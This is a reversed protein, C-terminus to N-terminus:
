LIRHFMKELDKVQLRVFTPRGHPCHGLSDESEFDDLLRQIEEKALIDHARVASHCALTALSQRSVAEVGREWSEMLAEVARAPERKLIAPAAVLQVKQDNWVRIEFGLQLLESEKDVLIAANQFLLPIPFLLRQSALREGKEFQALLKEYLIREHLAHQDFLYLDQDKRCVLFTQDISMFYDFSSARKSFFPLTQVAPAEWKEVKSETAVLPQLFSKPSQPEPISTTQAALSTSKAVLTESHFHATDLTKRIAGVILRFVEDPKQFRVELKMPHVNVDFDRPDGTLRVIATMERPFETFGEFGRRVAMEMKVDKLPRGNLFLYIGRSIEGRYKPHLGLVEVKWDANQEEALFWHEADSADLVSLAREFFTSKPFQLKKETDENILTWSVDPLAMAYRRFMQQISLAEARESKMFKLRAPLRDFLNQVKVCTGVRKDIVDIPSWQGFANRLRNGAKSENASTEISVDAVSGISALAEGRFGYSRLTQFDEMERVKSTAHSEFALLLDSESIGAGDDDVRLEKLGGDKYYVAIKSAGADLSNEILEKLVNAPREIVEGAAIQHILHPPLKRIM